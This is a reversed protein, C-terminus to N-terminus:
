PRPRPRATPGIGPTPGREAPSAPPEAAGAPDVAVGHEYVMKGGLWGSVGLLVAAFASLWVPGADYMAGGMRWGFNIAYLVVVALNIAMHTLAIRRLNGRLSLMDIVGPVAAVLAGVIGGALTYFAVTKWVDGGWEAAYVIDCLLSFVWLGIPIPVLMPHIPHKAVQAPTHM